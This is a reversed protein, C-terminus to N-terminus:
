QMVAMRVSSANGTLVAYALYPYGLPSCGPAVGALERHASSGSKVPSERLRKLTASLSPNEALTGPVEFVATFDANEPCGRRTTHVPLIYRVSGGLELQIQRM